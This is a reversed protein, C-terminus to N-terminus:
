TFVVSRIKVFIKVCICLSSGILNRSDDAEPDPDM